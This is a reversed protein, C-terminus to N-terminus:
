SLAEVNLEVRQIRYQAGKYPWENKMQPVREVYSRHDERIKRLAMRAHDRTRYLRVGPYIRPCHEATLFWWGRPKTGNWCLVAWGYVDTVIPRSPDPAIM